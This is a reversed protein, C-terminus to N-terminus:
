DGTWESDDPNSDSDDDEEELQQGPGLLRPQDTPPPPPSPPPPQPATLIRAALDPKNGTVALGRSSCIALLQDKSLKTYDGEHKDHVETLAAAAVPVADVLKQRKAADKQGKLTAAAEEKARKALTKAEVEAFGADDTMPGKLSYKGQTSVRGLKDPDIAAAPDFDGRQNKGNCYFSGVDVGNQEATFKELLNVKGEKEKLLLMLPKRTFPIIGAAEWGRMVSISTFTKDYAPKLVYALDSFNLSWRGRAATAVQTPNSNSNPHPEAHPQLTPNPNSTM